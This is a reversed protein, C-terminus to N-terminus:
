LGKYWSAVSEGIEHPHDEQVYHLGEGIEVATLNPFHDKLWGVTKESILGGPNAHLLLKPIDTKQLWQNYAHVIDHVDAPKGEIPIECPWQRVPKRSTATPYPENYRSM